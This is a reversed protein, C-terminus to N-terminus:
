GSTKRRGNLPVIAGIDYFACTLNFIQTGPRHM